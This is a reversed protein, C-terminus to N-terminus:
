LVTRFYQNCLQNLSSGYNICHFSVNFTNNNNRPLQLPVKASNSKVFSCDVIGNFLNYVFHLGNSERQIKLSQMDLLLSSIEGVRNLINFKYATYYIINLSERVSDQSYQLFTVM